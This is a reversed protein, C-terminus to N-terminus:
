LWQSGTRTRMRGGPPRRSRQGNPGLQACIRGRRKRIKVGGHRKPSSEGEALRSPLLLKRGLHTRAGGKCILRKDTITLESKHLQQLGRHDHHVWDTARHLSRIQQCRQLAECRRWLLWCLEDTRKDGDNSATRADGPRTPPQLQTATEDSFHFYGPM